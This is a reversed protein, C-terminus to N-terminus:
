ANRLERNIKSEIMKVVREEATKSIGFWQRKPLGPHNVKKTYVVGSATKFRLFKAKKPTITYPKTGGQHFGGIDKQTVSTGPYKRKDGPAIEVLQKQPTAKKVNLKRMKDTDVLIQDNGKARITSPKLGKMGRGDVGLGRDLRDIHDQRIIFGGKNLEKHLDFNIKRLNFRKLIDINFRM